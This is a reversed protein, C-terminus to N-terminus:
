SGTHQRMHEDVLIRLEKIEKQQELLTRSQRKIVNSLVETRDVGVVVNVLGTGTVSSSEWSRGILIEVQDLTIEDPGVATATGDELGSAVIYDGTEVPGVVRVPVQGIFSVSEFHTVDDSNPANGLVAARDTIAMVQQAGETRHSIRGDFVGVVDGAQFQSESERHPLYEAYDSGTTNYAVGGSGNGEIQGILDNENDFFGILNAATGPNGGTGTKLALVDESTTGGTNEVLGVYSTLLNGNVDDPVDAFYFAWDDAGNVQVGNDGATSVYLGDGGPASVYLGTQGVSLVEIGNLDVGSVEIGDSATNGQVRLVDGTGNNTITLLKTGDVNATGSIEAPLRLDLAEFSMLSYPSAVIQPRPLIEDGGNVEIQLWLEDDFDVSALSTESGLLVNYIGDTVQVDSQSETWKTLGATPFDKLRFVFDYLGNAPSGNDELFGQFSIYYPAELAVASTQVTEEEVEGTGAVVEPESIRRQGEESQGLTVSTMTLM